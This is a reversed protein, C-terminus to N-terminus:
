FLTPIVIERIVMVVVVVVILLEIFSFGKRDQQM